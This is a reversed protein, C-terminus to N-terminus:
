CYRQLNSVSAEGSIFFLYIFGENGSLFLSFSVVCSFWQSFLMFGVMSKCSFHAVRPSSFVLLSWFRRESAFM